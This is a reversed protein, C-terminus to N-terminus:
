QTSRSWRLFLSGSVALGEVAALAGAGKGMGREAQLVLIAVCLTVFV